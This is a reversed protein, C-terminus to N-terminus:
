QYIRLDVIKMTDRQVQVETRGGFANEQKLGFVVIWSGNASEVRDLERGTLLGPNRRELHRRAAAVAERQQPSLAPRTAPQTALRYQARLEHQRQMARRDILWIGAVAIAALAALVVLRRRLPDLQTDRDRM